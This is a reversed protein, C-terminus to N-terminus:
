VAVAMMATDSPRPFHEGSEFDFWLNSHVRISYFGNGNDILKTSSTELQHRLFGIQSVEVLQRFNEDPRPEAWIIPREVLPKGTFGNDLSYCRINRAGDLVKSARDTTKRITVM